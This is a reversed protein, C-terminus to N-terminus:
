KFLLVKLGETIFQVSVALLLIGTIRSLVNIGTKGLLNYLFSSAAFVLFSIFSALIIAGLLWIVDEFSKASARLILVTTISGPGALLPMALPILAINERQLAAEIEHKKGKEKGFEGYVLNLAILFLLIGGGVKFAPLTIGMFKFLLDGTFLFFILILAAYLAAKFAIVRIEKVSYDQVLSIVIPVSSFPNMIAILSIFAKLFFAVEPM